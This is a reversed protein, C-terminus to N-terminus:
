FQRSFAGLLATNLIQAAITYKMQFMHQGLGVNNSFSTPFTPSHVSNPWSPLASFIYFSSWANLHYWKNVWFNHIFCSMWYRIIYVSCDQKEKIQNSNNALNLNKIELSFAQINRICELLIFFVWFVRADKKEYIKSQSVPQQFLQHPLSQLPKGAQHCM